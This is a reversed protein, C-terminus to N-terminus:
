KRRLSGIRRRIGEGVQKGLSAHRRPGEENLGALVERSGAVEAEGHHDLSRRRNHTRMEIGGQEGQEKHMKLARDISFSPEGKGKIDDPHYDQGPWRKYNGGNVIMMNDGEKYDYMRGFRDQQGPPVVAVGDLPRHRKVADIVNERPTARLAEENSDQVAAIPSSEYSTNRALLAADYPGEHHYAGNVNDLRDITDAGPMHQKRLHPSRHARKSDRRIMDLPQHSKDGPFREGLSSSRSRMRTNSGGQRNSSYGSFAEQRYPNTPSFSSRHPSASPPPTPYGASSPRVHVSSSHKDQTSSPAREKITSGSTRRFPNTSSRQPIKYQPPSPPNIRESSTQPAFTSRFHTNLGTEEAPAREHLPDLLQAAAQHV